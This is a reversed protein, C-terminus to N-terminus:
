PEWLDLTVAHILGAQDVFLDVTWWQLCSADAPLEPQYSIRRLDTVRDPPPVPPSACHPHDGITIAIEGATAAKSLVDFPGAYGRFGPERDVVWREASTLEAEDITTLIESGLGVDVSPAFGAAAGTHASPERAFARFREM